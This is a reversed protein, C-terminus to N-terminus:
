KNYQSLYQHNFINYLSYCKKVTLIENYLEDILQKNFIIDDSLGELTLYKMIFKRAITPNKLIYNIFRFKDIVLDKQCVTDISVESYCEPCVFYSTNDYDERDM